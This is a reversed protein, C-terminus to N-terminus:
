SCFYNVLLANNMYILYLIIIKIILLSCQWAFYSCYLDIQKFINVDIMQFQTCIHSRARCIPSEVQTSGYLELRNEIVIIKNTNIAKTVFFIYVVKENYSEIVKLLALVKM